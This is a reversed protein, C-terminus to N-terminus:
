FPARTGRLRAAPVPCSCPAPGGPAPDAGPACPPGPQSWCPQALLGGSSGVAPLMPLAGLAREEGPAPISRHQHEWSLAVVWPVTVEGPEMVVGTHHHKWPEAGCTPPVPVMRCHPLDMRSCCGCGPRHKPVYEPCPATGGSM